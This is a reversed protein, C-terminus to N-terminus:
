ADQTSLAQQQPSLVHERQVSLSLKSEALCLFSDDQPSCVTFNVGFVIQGEQASKFAQAAMRAFTLLQQSM